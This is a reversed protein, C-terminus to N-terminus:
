APELERVEAPELAEHLIAELLRQRTEDGTALSAELRDCLSMLENIREVIRRQETLPPIPVLFESYDSGEIRCTGHSSRQVRMLMEPKLGKLARLLYEAIEPNKLVVAKMDQNITLSVKSIAVPFSHALIMGRVVFLLSNPAILNVASSSIATETISMQADSLYDVKMDKPSVWPISGSWFDDRSKAPTGGGMLKGLSSIRSWSWAPPIRFPLEISKGLSEDFCDAPGDSAQQEVLKGRVALNLITQRLQKIQDARTTVASLNDLVFRAHTTFTAPDPDPANLRALSAATLRDRAAEREKRAEELRDCLALLEDVKAVIRHQEALPPLPFAYTNLSRGTFHKIGTGTFSDALRGDDASARLAFVFFDASIFKEFRVRHLAKQFYIEESSGRWVAARGPEGGECILVDGSHLAFEALEHDEFPMDLLDNLDFGFWRVNVNRLYRKPSGRNKAKDLMKGLRADAVSGVSVWAWNEPIDFAGNPLPVAGITKLCQAVTNDASDQAVLKGRIALELVFQRLREIVDPAEAMREYHALLQEPNM